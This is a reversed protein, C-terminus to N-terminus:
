GSASCSHSFSFRNLSKIGVPSSKAFTERRDDANAHRMRLEFAFLVFSPLPSTSPDNVCREALEKALVQFLIGLGGLDDHLLRLQRALRPFGGALCPSAARLLASPPVPANGPLQAIADALVHLLALQVQHFTVRGAPAGFPAPEALVLRNERKRPLIILAYLDRSSLTSALSFHLAHNRGNPGSDAALLIDALTPVVLDDDHGVGVDVARM